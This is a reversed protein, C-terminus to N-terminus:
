ASERQAVMADWIAAGFEQPLQINTGLVGSDLWFVQLIRTGDVLYFTLFVSRVGPNMLLDPSYPAEVIMGVLRDIQEQDTISAAETREELVRIGIREVKEVIDLMDGANQWRPSRMAQYIAPEQGQKVAVRFGPDYGAISYVPTGPELGEADGNRVVGSRTKRKVTDYVSLDNEDAAFASRQYTIDNLKMFTQHQRNSDLGISGCSSVVLSSLLVAFVVVRTLNKM